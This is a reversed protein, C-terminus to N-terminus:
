RFSLPNCHKKRGDCLIIPESPPSPSGLSASRIPPRTRNLSPLVAGLDDFMKRGAIFQETRRLVLVRLLVESGLMQPPQSGALGKPTTRAGTLLPRINM